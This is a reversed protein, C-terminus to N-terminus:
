TLQKYYDNCSNVCTLIDIASTKHDIHLMEVTLDVVKVDTPTGLHAETAVVRHPVETARAVEMAVRHPVAM